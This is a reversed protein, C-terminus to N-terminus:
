ASAERAGPEPGDGWREAADLFREVDQCLLLPLVEAIREDPWAWWRIALLRRVIVDSFRQEVFRAPDGAVVSYPSVDEVVVSRAGIVAGDGIVVGSLVMAEMGIWVDNGIVVDGKTRPHGEITQAEPWLVTFPFTSVWDARHEGGLLVQVGPAISCFSGVTLTAGEGWTHVTLDGYSWRGIHFQPYRAHLSNWAGTPQGQDRSSGKL